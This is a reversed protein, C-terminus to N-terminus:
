ANGVESYEADVVNSVTHALGLKEQLLKIRENIMEDDVKEIKRNDNFTFENKVTTDKYETFKASMLTKLASANFGDIEGMAGKRLQQELYAQCYVKALDFAEKFEENEEIWRFFTEKSKVEIAKIMEAEGGGQEGIQIIKECMFPEYANKLTRRKLFAEQVMEFVENEVHKKRIEKLEKQSPKKHYM